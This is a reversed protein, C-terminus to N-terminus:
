NSLTLAFQYTHAIAKFCYSTPPQHAHLTARGGSLLLVVLLAMFYRHPAAM